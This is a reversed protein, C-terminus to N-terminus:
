PTSLVFGNQRTVKAYWEGSQKMTRKQTAYDVHVIGFRKSYGYAWEFNDLLSWVFYGQVPVGDQIARHVQAIYGELFAQRRDDCIRGDPTLEDSFAAGNETIYLVPPHYTEHVWKLVNYIGPPYVEWDMDTYEGEPHDLRIPLLGLGDGAGVVSRNYYNVGLFDTKASIAELDDDQITPAFPGYLELMDAPYESKYLPDLFWRNQFGELLRAAHQDEPSDSISDAWALNLVIGVKTNSNGNARIVPVAKGHSLLLHHAAQVAAPFDKYGPAHHGLGYGLWSACWPENHTMWQHVRDGLRRSVVDAYHVFAEVVSRDPWGGKDQLPQPLDWHYLTAYPTIGKELVTDVLRDYFDLGAANVSGTGEPLIRPWALSFRYAQVGLQGLLEIDEPYCYYHNCAPDGTDGNFVAGPVRCFTDWISTGRGDDQTAGEIQFSATAAGWVFNKPFTLANGNNTM